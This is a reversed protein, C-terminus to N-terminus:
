KKNQKTKDQYSQPKFEPCCEVGRLAIIIRAWVNNSHHYQELSVFPHFLKPDIPAFPFKKEARELNSYVPTSEIPSCVIKNIHL